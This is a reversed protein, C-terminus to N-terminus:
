ALALKARRRRLSGGVVGFGAIMMAWTAPEPVAGAITGEFSVESVFVWGQAPNQEFELSLPGTASLGTLNVWGIGFAPPPTFAQAVGNVLIRLPAAVGGFLSNDMHIAIDTITVGSAFNFTITPNPQSGLVWGVYPGPGNPAETVNWTNNAIIGDTLDGTGGSLAAGDTTTSGAGSYSEDWYNFSGTGGNPMSYSSVPISVAQAPVAAVGASLALVLSLSRLASKLRRTM